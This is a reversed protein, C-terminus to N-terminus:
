LKLFQDLLRNATMVTVHGQWKWDLPTQSGTAISRRRHVDKLIKTRSGSRQSAQPRLGAMKSHPWRTNYDGRLADMASRAHALSRFLTENLLEGQLRGNFHTEAGTSSERRSELM